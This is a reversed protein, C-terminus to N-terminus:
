QVIIINKYCPVNGTAFDDTQGLILKTAFMKWASLYALPCSTVIKKNWAYTHIHSIFLWCNIHIVDDIIVVTGTLCSDIIDSHLPHCCLDARFSLLHNTLSLMKCSM